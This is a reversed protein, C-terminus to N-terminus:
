KFLSPLIKSYRSSRLNLGTQLETKQILRSAPQNEFRYALVPSYPAVQTNEDLSEIRGTLGNVVWFTDEEAQPKHYEVIGSQNAQGLLSMEGQQANSYFTAFAKAEDTIRTKSALRFYETLQVSPSIQEVTSLWLHPEIGEPSFDSLTKKHDQLQPSLPTGWKWPNMELFAILQQQWYARFAPSLNRKQTLEDILQFPFFRPPGALIRMFSVRLSEQYYISENSLESPEYFFGWFTGDPHSLFNMELAQEEAVGTEDFGRVKFSFNIGTKLGASDGKQIPDVLFVSYESKAVPAGEFYKVKSEYITPFLPDNILREMFVKETEDLTQKEGAFDTSSILADWGESNDPMILSQLLSGYQNELKLIRGINRKGEPPLTEFNYIAELSKLYSALSDAGKISKQAALMTDRREQISKLTDEIRNISRQQLENPDLEPFKSLHIRANSIAMAIAKSDAEFDKSSSAAAAQELKNQAEQVYESLTQKRSNQLTSIRDKRWNEFQAIRSESDNEAKAVLASRMSAAQSLLTEIEPANPDVGDMGRIADLRDAIESYTTQLNKQRAIWTELSLAAQKIAHDSQADRILDGWAALTEEAQAINQRAAAQNIAATAIQLTESYQNSKVQDNAIWGIVVLVFLAGAGLIAYKPARKRKAESLAKRIEDQIEPPIRRGLKKAQAEHSKLREKADHVTAKKRGFSISLGRLVKRLDDISNQLLINSEYNERHHSIRTTATTLADRLEPDIKSRTNKITLQFDCEFYAKELAGKEAETKASKSQEILSEIALTSEKIANEEIAGLATKIAGEKDPLSIGYQRYRAVIEEPSETPVLDQLANKLDAEANQVAQSELRELESEFDSDVEFKENLIKAIRYAELPLKARVKARFEGQLWSKPDEIKAFRDSLSKSLTPDISPAIEWGFTACRKRWIEADAFDLADITDLVSPSSYNAIYANLDSEIELCRKLRALAHEVEKAYQWALNATELGNSEGKLATKIRYVLRSADPRM